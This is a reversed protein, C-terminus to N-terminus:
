RMGAVFLPLQCLAFAVLLPPALLHLTGFAVAFLLAALVFREIACRVLQQMADSDAAREARRECRWLWATLLLAILGGALASAFQLEGPSGFLLAITLAVGL